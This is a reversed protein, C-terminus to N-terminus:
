FLAIVFLTSLPGSLFLIFVISAWDGIIVGSLIHFTPCIRSVFAIITAFNYVYNFPNSVFLYKIEGVMLSAKVLTSCHLTSKSTITPQMSPIFSSMSFTPSELNLTTWPAKFVLFLPKFFSPLTPASRSKVWTCTPAIWIWESTSQM